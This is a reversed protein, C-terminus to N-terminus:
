AAAIKLSAKQKGYLQALQNERPLWDFGTAKCLKSVNSKQCGLFTALEGKAPPRHLKTALKEIAEIFEMESNDYGSDLWNLRRAAKLASSFEDILIEAKYQSPEFLIRFLADNIKSDGRMNFQQLALVLPTEDGNELLAKRLGKAQARRLSGMHKHRLEVTAQGGQNFHLANGSGDLPGYVIDGDPMKIGKLNLARM